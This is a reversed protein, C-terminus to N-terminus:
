QALRAREPILRFLNHVTGTKTADQASEEGRTMVKWDRRDRVWQQQFAKLAERELSRWCQSVRSKAENVAASSAKAEILADLNHKLGSFHPDAKLEAVLKAPLTCPLGDERFRELGQFYEVHRHDAAEGLFAGQGDVSSCNAVYSQGFVRPDAQTIHQSREVATYRETFNPKAM